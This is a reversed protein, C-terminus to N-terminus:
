GAAELMNEPLTSTLTLVSVEPSNFLRFPMLPVTGNTSMGRTIYMQSEGVTSLGSVEEQNPFWGGRSLTKDPVYFAIHFCILCTVLVVVVVLLLVVLFVM